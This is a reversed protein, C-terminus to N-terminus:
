SKAGAGREDGGAADYAGFPPQWAHRDEFGILKWGAKDRNGGHGPMAFMGALTLFRVTSFFAEREIERVLATQEEFALALFRGEGGARRDLDAIGAELAPRAGAWPGAVLQDIFWVVGADRAGPTDDAPIIQEAIAELALATAEDLSIFGSSAERQRCAATAAALFVPWQTALWGSGAVGFSRSLFARRSVPDAQSM